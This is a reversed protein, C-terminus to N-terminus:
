FHACRIWSTRFLTFYLSIHQSMVRGVFNCAVMNRLDLALRSYRPCFGSLTSWIKTCAPYSSCLIYIHNLLKDFTLKHTLCVIQVEIWIFLDTKVSINNIIFQLSLSWFMLKDPYFFMYLPWSMSLCFCVCSM